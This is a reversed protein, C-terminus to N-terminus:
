RRGGGNLRRKNRPNVNEPNGAEAAQWSPSAQHIQNSVRARLRMHLVGDMHGAGSLHCSAIAAPSSRPTLLWFILGSNQPEGQHGGDKSWMIRRTSSSAEPPPTFDCMQVHPDM